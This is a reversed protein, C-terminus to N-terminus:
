ITAGPERGTDVFDIIARLGQLDGEITGAKDRDVWRETYGGGFDTVWADGDTDVLINSAKADGWIIGARHLAEVTVTVQRKWKDKVSGGLSESKIVKGYLTDDVLIYYLLLGIVHSKNDEVIGYLRSTRVEKPDFGAKSIKELTLVEKAGISDDPDQFAKFFLQRGQVRVRTPEDVLVYTPDDPLVEVEKAHFIPCTTKWPIGPNGVVNEMEDKAEIVGPVLSDDVATLSADFSEGTFFHQLTVKEADSPRSTIGELLPFFPRVAWEYCGDLSLDLFPRTNLTEGGEDVDDDDEDSFWEGESDLQLIELYQNFEDLRTPSNEFGEPCVEITLTKGYVKVHVMFWRKDEDRDSPTHGCKQYPPRQSDEKLPEM